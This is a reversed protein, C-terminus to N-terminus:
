PLETSRSQLLWESENVNLAASALSLAVHGDESNLTWRSPDGLLDVADHHALFLSSGTRSARVRWEAEPLNWRDPPGPLYLEIWSHRLWRSLVDSCASAPWPGHVVDGSAGRDVSGSALEFLATEERVAARMQAIFDSYREPM